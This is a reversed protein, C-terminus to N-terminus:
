LLLRTLIQVWWRMDISLTSSILQLNYAFSSTTPSAPPQLCFQLNYAFSSTTPLAPPQLCLQLNYAFSTSTPLGRLHSHLILKIFLTM